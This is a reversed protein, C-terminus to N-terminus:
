ATRSSGQMAPRLRLMMPFRWAPERGSFLDVFGVALNPDSCVNEIFSSWHRAELASDRVVPAEGLAGRWASLLAMCLDTLVGICPGLDQHACPLVRERILNALLAGAAFHAFDVPHSAEAEPDSAVLAIWGWYARGVLDRDATVGLGRAQCSADIWAPLATRMWSWSRTKAAVDPSELWTPLEENDRQSSSHSTTM